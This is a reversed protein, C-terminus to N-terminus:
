IVDKQNLNMQKPYIRQLTQVTIILQFQCQYKKIMEKRAKSANVKKHTKTTQQRNQVAQTNRKVHATKSSRSM